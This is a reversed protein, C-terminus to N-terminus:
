LLGVHIQRLLTYAWAPTRCHRGCTLDNIHGDNDDNTATMTYAGFQSRRDSFDDM